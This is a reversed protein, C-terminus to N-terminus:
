GYRLAPAALTGGVPCFRMTQGRQHTRRPLYEDFFTAFTNPPAPKPPLLVPPPM